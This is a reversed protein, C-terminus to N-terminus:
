LFDKLDLEIIVTKLRSCCYECKLLGHIDSAVNVGDKHPALLVIFVRVSKTLVRCIGDDALTNM